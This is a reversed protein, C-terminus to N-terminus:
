GGSDLLAEEIWEEVSREGFLGTIMADKVDLIGSMDEFIILECNEGRLPITITISM